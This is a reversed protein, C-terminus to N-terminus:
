EERWYLFGGPGTQRKASQMSIKKMDWVTRIRKKIRGVDAIATIQWIRRPGGIVVADKVTKEQLLVGKVAPLKIEQQQGSSGGQMAGMTQDVMFAQMAVEMPSAVAKTFQKLDSFGGLYGRIHVLYRALLTLNEWRLAQENARNKVAHQILLSTLLPVNALNVNVKCTGYVTFADMFASAFDDDVGRVLRVEEITDYYQNKNEYKDKRANYRYDEVGTSGFMVQDQDAWDIIARMTELRDIYQGDDDPDEFLTNYRPPMLMAALSAATRQVTPSGSNAGGACNLNLKGDLSIMELDFSGVDVGLGKVEGDGFGFLSGLMQAGERSNFASLLIPAYDAIQIDINGLLKRNPDIVRQQVRMLLKALNIGSRALYHARLDDRANAAAALDMTTNFAFDATTTAMVAVMIVVSILAAGRERRKAPDDGRLRKAWRRLMM